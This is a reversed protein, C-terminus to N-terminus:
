GEENETKKQIKRKSKSKIMRTTVCKGHQHDVKINCINADIKRNQFNM